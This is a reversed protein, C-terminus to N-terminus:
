LRYMKQHDLRQYWSVTIRYCLEGTVAVLIEEELIEEETIVETTVEMIVEM